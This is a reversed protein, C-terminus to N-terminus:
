DPFRDHQPLDDGITHWPGQQRVFLHASPRITPADVLTGLTVHVYAGDRVLSYLLSGCNRCRADHNAGDGYSEAACRRGEDRRARRTRHGRVAQVRGGTARAAIPAIVTSRMVRVRRARHVRGRRVPLPGTLVRAPDNVRRERAALHGGVIVFPLVLEPILYGLWTSRPEPLGVKAISV